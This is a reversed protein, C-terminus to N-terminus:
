KDEIPHYYNKVQRINMSMEILNVQPYLQYKSVKAAEMNTDYSLKEDRIKDFITM